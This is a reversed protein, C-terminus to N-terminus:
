YWIPIYGSADTSWAKTLTADEYVNIYDIGAVKGTTSALVDVFMAGANDYTNYQAPASGLKKTPIYDVWATLGTTSALSNVVMKTTGNATAYTSPYCRPIM